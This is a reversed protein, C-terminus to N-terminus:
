RAAELLRSYQDIDGAPVDVMALRQPLQLPAARDAGGGLLATRVGAASIDDRALAAACAAQWRVPEVDNALACVALFERHARRRDDGHRQELALLMAGVEEAFQAQRVPIANSFAGPKRRLVPLYHWFDCVPEGPGDVRRHRAIRRTATWVEVHEAFARLWLRRGAHEVPVSYRRQQFTVLAQLTAKVPHRTCPLFPQAPLPALLPREARFREGVTQEQGRRRRREEAAARVALITNLEDLSGVDPVPVLYSRRMYGVLNEVLGKEHGQGPTCHHARFRFASQLGVFEDCPVFHGKVIRGLQSPNDYWITAPAGGWTTFTNVHGDLWAARDQRSYAVVVDRTSHSLRACFLQLTREVGAIRAQAEGFDIQGEAGPDHALPITVANLRPRGHERVWGRVTSEAGAFGHEDRLREWIRHATHRQKRPRSQDEELWRVVIPAVADMVPHRRPGQERYRWPGADALARRITKRSKHFTRALERIAVGERFHAWRIREIEAVKTM